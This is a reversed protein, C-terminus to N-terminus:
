AEEGLNLVGLKREPATDIDDLVKRLRATHGRILDVHMINAIDDNLDVLIKIIELVRGDPLDGYNVLDDTLDDWDLFNRTM